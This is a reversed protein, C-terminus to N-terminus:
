DNLFDELVSYAFDHVDKKSKKSRNVLKKYMNEPMPIVLMSFKKLIKEEFLKKCQAVSMKEENLVLNVFKRSDHANMNLLEKAVQDQRTGSLKSLLYSQEIGLERKKICKKAYDNLKNIKNIQFLMYKSVDFLKAMDELKRGKTKLVHIATAMDTLLVDKSKSGKLNAMLIKTATKEDM